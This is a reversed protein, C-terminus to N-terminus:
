ILNFKNFVEKIDNIEYQTFSTKDTYNIEFKIILNGKQNLENILGKEVVVYDKNPNIIGFKNIDFKITEDFYPIDIIKGVITEFINIKTTYILNNKDRKFFPHKEIEIKIIFDGSKENLRTAQEGWEEFLYEKGNEVGKPIQLFINKEKIKFGSSNCDNCNIFSNRIVGNGNCVDCIQQLFQVFPGIQISQGQISGSGVCKACQLKCLECIYRKKINFNKNIGSYVDNLNIKFIYYENNKKINRQQHQNMFNNFINFPNFPIDNILNEYAENIKQFHEKTDKDTNKDPHYIKALKHYANKIEEKTANRNIQLIDYYSSMIIIFM